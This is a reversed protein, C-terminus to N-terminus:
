SQPRIRADLAEVSCVRFGWFFLGRGGVGLGSAGLM